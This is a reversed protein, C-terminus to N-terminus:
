EDNNNATNAKKEKRHEIWHKVPSWFKLADPKLERLNKLSKKIRAITKKGPEKDDDSKIYSQKIRTKKLHSKLYQKFLLYDGPNRSFYNRHNKEIQKFLELAIEPFDKAFNLILTSILPFFIGPHAQAYRTNLVSILSEALKRANTYGDSNRLLQNFPYLILEFSEKNYFPGNGIIWNADQVESLLQLLIKRFSNLGQLGNESSYNFYSRIFEQALEKRTNLIKLVETLSVRPKEGVPYDKGKISLYKLHRTSALEKFCLSILNSNAKTFFYERNHEIADLLVEVALDSKVEGKERALFKYIKNSILESPKRKSFRLLPTLSTPPAARIFHDLGKQNNAWFTEPIAEALSRFYNIDSYTNSMLNLSRRVMERQMLAPFKTNLNFLIIIAALRRNRYKTIVDPNAPKFVKNQQHKTFSPNLYGIIGHIIATFEKTNLERETEIEAIKHSLKKIPRLSNSLTDWFGIPIIQLLKALNTLNGHEVIAALTLSINPKHEPSNLFELYTKGIYSEKPRSLYELGELVKGMLVQALEEKGDQILSKIIGVLGTSNSYSERLVVSEPTQALEEMIKNGVLARVLFPASNNSSKSSLLKSCIPNATTSNSFFLALLAIIIFSYKKPNISKM